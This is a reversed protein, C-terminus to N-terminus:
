RDLINIMVYGKTGTSVSTYRLEHKGSGVDAPTYRKSHAMIGDISWVADEPVHPSYLDIREDSMNYVTRLPVPEGAIVMPEGAKEGWLYDVLEPFEVFPNRNGQLSEIAAMRMKEGENVPYASHWATLLKVGYRNLGPYPEATMMMFGRPSWAAQHYMVAMYFYVRALEGRFEAPPEYLDTVIGSIEGRGSKWYSNSYTVDTVIGPTLDSRHRVVDGTLPFANYLDSEVAHVYSANWWESPVLTGWVYGEPLIGNFIDVRQSNFPDFVTMSVQETSIDATPSYCEYVANRLAEGSKGNFGFPVKAVAVASAFIGFSLFTLLPLSRGM